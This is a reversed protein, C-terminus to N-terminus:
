VFVDQIYITVVSNLNIGTIDIDMTGPPIKLFGILDDLKNTKQGAGDEVYCINKDMNIVTRQTINSISFSGGNSALTISDATGAIEIIPEHDETGNNVVRISCPGTVTQEIKVAETKLFPMCDFEATMICMSGKIESELEEYFWGEYYLEPEDDVMLKM